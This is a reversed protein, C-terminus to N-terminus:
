GEIEAAGVDRDEAELVMQSGEVAQAPKHGFLGGQLAKETRGVVRQGVQHQGQRGAQGADREGVKRGELHQIQRAASRQGLQLDRLAKGSLEVDSRTNEEFSSLNEREEFRGAERDKVTTATGSQNRANGSNEAMGGVKKFKRHLVNLSWIKFKEM